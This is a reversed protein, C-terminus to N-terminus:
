AGAAAGSTVGTGVGAAFGDVAVGEVSDADAVAEDDTATGSGIGITVAGGVADVLVFHPPGSGNAAAPPMPTQMSPVHTSSHFGPLDPSHDPRM